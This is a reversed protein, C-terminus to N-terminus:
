DIKSGQLEPISAQYEDGVNIFPVTNMKAMDSLSSDINEQSTNEPFFSDEEGPEKVQIATNIVLKTPSETDEISETLDIREEESDIKINNELNNELSNENSQNKEQAMGQKNGTIFAEM